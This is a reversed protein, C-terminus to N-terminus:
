EAEELLERHVSECDNTRCEFCVNYGGCWITRLCCACYSGGKLVEATGLEVVDVGQSTRVGLIYPDERDPGKWETEV